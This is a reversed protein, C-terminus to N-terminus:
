CIRLAYQMIIGVSFIMCGSVIISIAGLMIGAIVDGSEVMGMLILKKLKEKKKLM